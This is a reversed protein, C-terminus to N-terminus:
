ETLLHTAIYKNEVTPGTPGGILLIESVATNTIRANRIEPYVDEIVIKIEDGSKIKIPVPLKVIQWNKSDHLNVYYKVQKNHLIKFKKIRNYKEWTEEDKCFGNLIKIEKIEISKYKKEYVPAFTIEKFNFTITEGVGDNKGNEIWATDAYNDNINVFTFDKSNSSTKVNYKLHDDLKRQMGLEGDKTFIFDTLPESTITKIERKKPQEKKVIQKEAKETQAAPTPTVAASESFLFDIESTQSTEQPTSATTTDEPLLMQEGTQSIEADMSSFIDESSSEASQTVNEPSATGTAATNDAPTGFDLGEFPDEEAYITFSLLLVAFITILTKKKM